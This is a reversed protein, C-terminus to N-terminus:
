FTNKNKKTHTQERQSKKFKQMSVNAPNRKNLLTAIKM